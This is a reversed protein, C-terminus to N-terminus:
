NRYRKEFDSVMSEKLKDFSIAEIFTVDPYNKLREIGEM